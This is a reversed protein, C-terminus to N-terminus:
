ITQLLRNFVAQYRITGKEAAIPVIFLDFAGLQDHEFLYTRQPLAQATPGAFLLSFNEYRPVTSRDRDADGTSEAAILELEVTTASAVEVRFRTNVLNAFTVFSLQDLPVPQM